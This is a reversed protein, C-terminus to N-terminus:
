VFSSLILNLLNLSVDMEEFMVAVLHIPSVSVTFICELNGAYGPPGTPAVLTASALMYGM